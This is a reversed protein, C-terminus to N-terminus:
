IIIIFTLNDGYCIDLEKDGNRDYSIHTRANTYNHRQWYKNKSLEKITKKCINEPIWNDLHLIYDKLNKKVGSM